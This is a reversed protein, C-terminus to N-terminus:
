RQDFRLAYKNGSKHWNIERGNPNSKSRLIRLRSQFVGRIFQRSSPIASEIKDRIEDETLFIGKDPDTDELSWLILGDTLTLLLTENGRRRNVEQVLFACLTKADYPFERSKGSSGIGELYNIAPRLYSNFAQISQSNNNIHSEIYQRARVRITINEKDSFDEEIKDAQSVSESFYFVISKVDRGFERIRKITSSIKAEVSGTKSAQMFHTVRNQSEFLKEEFGDAGGDHMGGLPVFSSGVISAHFAQAFAEFAATDCETLALGCLRQDILSM